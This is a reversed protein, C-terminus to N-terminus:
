WSYKWRNIGLALLLPLPWLLLRVKMLIDGWLGFIFGRGRSLHLSWVPTNRHTHTWPSKLDQGQHCRRHKVPLRCLILGAKARREVPDQLLAFVCIGRLDPDRDKFSESREPVNCLVQFFNSVFCSQRGGFDWASGEAQGRLNGAKGSAHPPSTFASAPSVPWHTLNLPM